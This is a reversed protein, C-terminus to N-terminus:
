QRDTSCGSRRLLARRYESPPAGFRLAFDRSFHSPDTAGVHRMIEKVKMHSSRLLREAACLRQQRLFFLPAVGLQSRFLYRLRSPSLQVSEALEPVSWSYGPRQAIVDVITVIRPDLCAVDM